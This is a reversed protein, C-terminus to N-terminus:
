AAPVTSAFVTVSVVPMCSSAPVTNRPATANAASIQGFPTGSGTSIIEVPASASATPDSIGDIVL